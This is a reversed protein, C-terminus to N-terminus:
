RPARQGEALQAHADRFALLLLGLRLVCCQVLLLLWLFLLLWLLLQLLWCLM